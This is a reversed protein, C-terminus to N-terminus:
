TASSSEQEGIVERVAALLEKPQVPKAFTRDVGLIKVVGLYRSSSIVGGGSIAIIKVDPFDRRLEAIMETGEKDPMVIDTIVLDPSYDHYAKLGEKGNSAEIVEYGAGELMRRFMTRIHEDDEVILIRAM